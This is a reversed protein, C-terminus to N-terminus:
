QLSFLARLRLPPAQVPRPFSSRQVPPPLKQAVSVGKGPSRRAAKFNTDKSGIRRGGGLVRPIELGSDAPATKSPNPTSSLDFFGPVEALAGSVEIQRGRPDERAERSGASLGFPGAVWPALCEQLRRGRGGCELDGCFNGPLGPGRTGPILCRMWHGDGSQVACGTGASQPRGQLELGVARSARLEVKRAGLDGHPRAPAPPGSPIARSRASVRIKSGRRRRTHRARPGHPTPTAQPLRSTHPETGGWTGVERGGPLAWPGPRSLATRVRRAAKWRPRHRRRPPRPPRAPRM